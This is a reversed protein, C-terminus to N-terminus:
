SERQVGHAQTKWLQCSGTLAAPEAGGGITAFSAPGVRMDGGAGAGVDARLKLHFITRMPSRGEGAAQSSDWRQGVRSSASDADERHYRSYQATIRKHAHPRRFSAVFDYGEMTWRDGVAHRRDSL